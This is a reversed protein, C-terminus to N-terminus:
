IISLFGGALFASERAGGTRSLWLPQPNQGESESPGRQGGSPLECSPCRRERSVRLVQKSHPTMAASPPWSEGPAALSAKEGTQNLSGARRGAGVEAM